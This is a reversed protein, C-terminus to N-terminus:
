KLYRPRLQRIDVDRVCSVARQTSHHSSHVGEARWRAKVVKGHSATDVRADVERHWAGVYDDVCSNYRVVSTVSRQERLNPCELLIYNYASTNISELDM